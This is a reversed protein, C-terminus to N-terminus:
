HSLTQNRISNSVRVVNSEKSLEKSIALIQYGFKGEFTIKSNNSKYFHERGGYKQILAKRDVESLNNDFQVDLKHELQGMLNGQLDMLLPGFWGPYKAEIAKWDSESLPQGDIRKYTVYQRKNPDPFLEASLDISTSYREVKEYGVESMREQLDSQSDLVAKSIFGVIYRDNTLVEGEIGNFFSIMKVSGTPIENMSENKREKVTKTSSCSYAGISVVTSLILIKLTVKIWMYDM